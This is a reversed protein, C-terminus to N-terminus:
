MTVNRDVCIAVSFAILAWAPIFSASVCEVVCECTSLSCPCSFTSHYCVEVLVSVVNTQKNTQKSKKFKNIYSM